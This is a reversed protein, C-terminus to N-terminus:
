PKPKAAGLQRRYVTEFAPKGGISLGSSVSQSPGANPGGPRYDGPEPNSPGKTTVKSEKSVRTGGKARADLRDIQDKPIATQENKVIVVIREDDAEAMEAMVPKAVGKQQIRLETGTTLEKVKTWSDDAGVALVAAALIALATRKMVYM